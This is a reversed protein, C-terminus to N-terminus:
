GAIFDQGGSFRQSFERLQLGAQQFNQHYVFTLNKRELHEDVGYPTRRGAVTHHEFLENIPQAALDLGIWGIWLHQCGDAPDAIREFYDISECENRVCGM